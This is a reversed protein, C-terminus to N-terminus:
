HSLVRSPLKFAENNREFASPRGWGLVMSYFIKFFNVGAATDRDYAFAEVKATLSQCCASTCLKTRIERRHSPRAPKRTDWFFSSENWCRPCLKSTNFEPMRVVLVFEQLFKLLEKTAPKRHGRGTGVGDEGVLVIFDRGPHAIDATARMDRLIERFLRQKGCELARRLQAEKLPTSDGNKRRARAKNLGVAHHYHGGRVTFPQVIRAAKDDGGNAPLVVGGGLWKCLGLDLSFVTTAALVKPSVLSCAISAPLEAFLRSKRLRDGVVGDSTMVGAFIMQLSHGKEVAWMKVRSWLAELDFIRKVESNKQKALRRRDRLARELEEYRASALLAWRVTLLLVSVLWAASLLRRM